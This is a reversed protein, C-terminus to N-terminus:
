PQGERGGYGQLLSARIMEAFRNQRGAELLPEVVERQVRQARERSRAKEQGAETARADLEARRRAHGSLLAPPWIRM